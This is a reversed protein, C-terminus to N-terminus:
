LTCLDEKSGVVVCQKVMVDSGPKEDRIAQECAMMADIEHDSEIEDSRDIGDVCTQVRYMTM